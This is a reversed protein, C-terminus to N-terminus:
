RSHQAMLFKDIVKGSEKAAKKNGEETGGFNMLMGSSVGIGNGNFVHGANKYTYVQVNNNQSKIIKAMKRTDAMQDDEGVILLINTQLDQIPILKEERQSDAQLASGYMERFTVPAGTMKPIIIDKLVASFSAKGLDVYPIAEGHWTWSPGSKEFDLGSYSYAMPAFLVLNSIESYKVALNLAFEAGKSASIVTIPSHDKINDDAYDLVDQFQELPVNSLTKQQNKMGFMFVSLTEYGNKAYQVATDYLPGGDSGGYCVIIGKFKKKEPILHFGQFTGRDVIKVEVRDIDTPYKSLDTVDFSSLSDAHRYKHRNFANVAFVMGCVACVFCIVALVAKKVNKGM